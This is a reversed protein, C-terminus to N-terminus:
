FLRLENESGICQDCFQFYDKTEVLYERVQNALETNNKWFICEEAKNRPRNSPRFVFEAEIRRRQLRQGMYRLYPEVPIAPFCSVSRIHPLSLLRKSFREEFLYCRGVGLNEKWNDNCAFPYEYFNCMSMLHDLPDRCPVHLELEVQNRGRSNHERFIDEWFHWSLEQSIYDCNEYGIEKMVEEPVRGRKFGPYSSRIVDTENKMYKGLVQYADYSYGKHGCVREFHSALEGNVTTGATKFMHVHGYVLLSSTNFISTNLTEALGKQKQSNSNERLTPYKYDKQSQHSQHSQHTHPQTCFMLLILILMGSLIFNLGLSCRSVTISQSIKVQNCGQGTQRSKKTSYSKGLPLRQGVQVLPESCQVRVSSVKMEGDHDTAPCMMSIRHKLEMVTMRTV